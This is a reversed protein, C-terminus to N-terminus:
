RTPVIDCHPKMLAILKDTDEAVKTLYDRESMRMNRAVQAAGDLQSIESLLFQEENNEPEEPATHKKHLGLVLRTLEETVADGPNATGDALVRKITESVQQLALLEGKRVAMLQKFARENQVQATDDTYVIVDAVAEVDSVEKDDQYILDDKSTGAAFSKPEMGNMPVIGFMEMHESPTSPSGDAYDTSGDAYKLRISINYANIDKGSTNEVRMMVMKKTLASYWSVRIGPMMPLDSHSTPILLSDGYPHDVYTTPTQGSTPLGLALICLVAAIAKMKM